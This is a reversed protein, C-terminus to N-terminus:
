YFESLVTQLPKVICGKSHEDIFARIETISRSILTAPRVVEPFTQLYLKSQAQGLGQPDNVVIDRRSPQHNRQAFGAHDIM